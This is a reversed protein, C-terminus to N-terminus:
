IFLEPTIKDLIVDVNKFRSFYNMVCWTKGYSNKRLTADYYKDLISEKAQVQSLKKNSWEKAEDIMTATFKFQFHEKRKKFFEYVVGLRDIFEGNKKWDNYFDKVIKKTMEAEQEPTPKAAIERLREEHKEHERIPKALTMKRYYLYASLVQSIFLPSIIGYFEINKDYKNLVYNLCALNLEQLTLHSFQSHVFQAAIALEQANSGDKPVGLMMRWEAMCDVINELSLKSLVVSNQVALVINSQEKNETFELLSKPKLM